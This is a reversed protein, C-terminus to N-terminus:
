KYYFGAADEFQARYYMKVTWYLWQVCVHIASVAIVLTYSESTQYEPAVTECLYAKIGDSIANGSSASFFSICPVKGEYILAFIGLAVVYFKLYENVFLMMYAQRSQYPLFMELFSYGLLPSTALGYYIGGTYVTSLSYDYLFTISMSFFLVMTSFWYVIDELM